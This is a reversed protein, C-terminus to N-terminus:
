VGAAVEGLEGGEEGSASLVFWGGCESVEDGVDGAARGLQGVEPGDGEDFAGVGGQGREDGVVAFKTSQAALDAVAVDCDRQLVFQLEALQQLLEAIHQRRGFDVRRGEM